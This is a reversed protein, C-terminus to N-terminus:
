GDIMDVPTVVARWAVPVGFLDKPTWDPQNLHEAVYTSGVRTLNCDDHVARAARLALIHRDKAFESTGIKHSVIGTPVPYPNAWHSTTFGDLVPRQKSRLNEQQPGTLLRGFHPEAGHRIVVKTEAPFTHGMALIRKAADRVVEGRGYAIIGLAMAHAILLKHIPAANLAFPQDLSRGLLYVLSGRELSEGLIQGIRASDDTLRKGAALYARALDPLGAEDKCGDEARKIAERLEDDELLAACRFALQGRGFDRHVLRLADILGGDGCGSVVFTAPRGIDRTAELGDVRWYDIPDFGAHQKEEGFGVTLLVLNYISDKVKEPTHRVKLGRENVVLVESVDCGEFVELRPRNASEIKRFQDLLQTTVDHCRGVHWELFPLETTARLDQRPWQNISPHVMRHETERQRSMLRHREFLHVECGHALFAVAATMGALGGGIVAVRDNATCEGRRHLAWVLNLARYQQAIFSVRRAFPGLCYYGPAGQVAAVEVLLDTLHVL